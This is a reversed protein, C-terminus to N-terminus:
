FIQNCMKNKNYYTSRYMMERHCSQTVELNKSYTNLKEHACLNFSREKGQSDNIAQNTVSITDQGSKTTSLILKINIHTEM